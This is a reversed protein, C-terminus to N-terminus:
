MQFITMSAVVIQSQKFQLFDKIFLIVIFISAFLVSKGDSFLSNNRDPIIATTYLSNLRQM